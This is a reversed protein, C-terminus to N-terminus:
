DSIWEYFRVFSIYLLVQLVVTSGTSVGRKIPERIVCGMKMENGPFLLEENYLRTVTLLLLLLLLVLLLLLLLLVQQQLKKCDRTM